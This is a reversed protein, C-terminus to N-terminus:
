QYRFRVLPFSDGIRHAEGLIGDSGESAIPSSSEPGVQQKGRQVAQYQQQQQVQGLTDCSLNLKMRVQDLQAAQESLKTNIAALQECIGDVLTLKGQTARIEAFEQLMREQLAEM